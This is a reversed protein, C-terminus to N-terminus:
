SCFFNLYHVYSYKIYSLIIKNYTYCRSYIIYYLYSHMNLALFVSREDSIEWVLLFSQDQHCIFSDSLFDKLAHVKPQRGGTVPRYTVNWFAPLFSGSILDLITRFVLSSFTFFFIYSVTSDPLINPNNSRSGGFTTVQLKTRMGNRLFRKGQQFTRM